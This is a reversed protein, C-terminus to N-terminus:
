YEKQGYWLTSLPVRTLFSPGAIADWTSTHPMGRALAAAARQRELELDKLKIPADAPARDPASTMESPPSLVALRGM